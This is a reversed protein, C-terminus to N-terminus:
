GFLTNMAAGYGLPSNALVTYGTLNQHLADAFVNPAWKQAVGRQQTDGLLLNQDILVAQGANCISRVEDNLDLLFDSQAVSYRSATNTADSASPPSTKLIPVVKNVQCVALFRRVYSLWVSVQAASPSPDNPSAVQWVAASPAFLPLLLEVLAIQEALTAASRALVTSTVPPQTVRSRNAAAILASINGTPTSAYGASTSDGCELLSSIPKASDLFKVGAVFHGLGVGAATYGPKTTVFNGAQVSPIWEQGIATLVSPSPLNSRLVPINANAAPVFGRVFWMRSEDNDSRSFLLPSMKDSLTAVPAANTGGGTATGSSSGGITGDVWTGGNNYLDSANAATSACINIGSIAAALSNLLILQCSEAPKPGALKLSFTKGSGTNGDSDPYNDAQRIGSLALYASGGARQRNLSALQGYSLNSAGGYGTIQM